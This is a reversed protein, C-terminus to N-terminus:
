HVRINALICQTKKSFGHFISCVTVCYLWLNNDWWNIYKQMEPRCIAPPYEAIASSASSWARCVNSAVTGFNDLVLAEDGVPIFACGIRAM